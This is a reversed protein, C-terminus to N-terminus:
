DNETTAPPSVSGGTNREILALYTKGMYEVEVAAAQSPTPVSAIQIEGFVSTTVQAEALVVRAVSLVRFRIPAGALPLAVTYQRVVPDDPFVDKDLVRGTYELGGLITRRPDIFGQVFGAHGTHGSDPGFAPQNEDDQVDLLFVFLPVMFIGLVTEFGAFTMSGRGEMAYTSRKVQRALSVNSEQSALLLISSEDAFAQFTAVPATAQKSVEVQRPPGKSYSTRIPLQSCGAFQAVLFLILLRGIM